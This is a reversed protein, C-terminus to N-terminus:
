QKEYVCACVDTNFSGVVCMFTIVKAISIENSCWSREHVIIPFSM